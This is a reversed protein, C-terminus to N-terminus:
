KKFLKKLADLQIERTDWGHQAMAAIDYDCTGDPNKGKVIQHSDVHV